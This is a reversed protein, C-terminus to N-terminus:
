YHSGYEWGKESLTKPKENRKNRKVVTIIVGIIIMIISPGFSATALLGLGLGTGIDIIGLEDLLGGVLLPGVGLMFIIFGVILTWHLKAIHSKLSTEKKM